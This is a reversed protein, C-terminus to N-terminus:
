LLIITPRMFTSLAHIKKNGPEKWLMIINVVQQLRVYSSSGRTLAYNILRLHLMSLEHQIHDLRKRDPNDPDRDSYAHRSIMACYHGLHMGSPSTSTSERWSKLKSLFFQLIDIEPCIPHAQRAQQKRMLRLIAAASPDAISQLDLNGHHLVQHGALNCGTYGFSGSLPEITFPTGHAQGFHIRKRNQLVELVESPVVDVVKWEHCTKPDDSPDSPIEVRTISQHATSKMQAGKIKRHVASISEAKQLQILIAAKSINSPLGTANLAAIQAVLDNHRNTHHVKVIERLETAATRLMQSCEGSVTTPYIFDTKIQRGLHLVQENLDIRTRHM